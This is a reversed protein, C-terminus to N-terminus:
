HYNMTESLMGHHTLLMGHCNISSSSSLFTYFSIELLVKQLWIFSNTGWGWFANPNKHIFRRTDRLVDRLIAVLPFHTSCHSKFDSETETADMWSDRTPCNFIFFIGGLEGERWRRFLPRPFFSSITYWLDGHVAQKSQIAGFLCGNSFPNPLRLCFFDELIHNSYNWKPTTGKLRLEMFKYNVM